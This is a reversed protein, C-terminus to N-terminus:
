NMLSTATQMQQDTMGQDKMSSLLNRKSDTVSRSLSSVEAQLVKVKQEKEEASMSRNSMLKQLEQQKQELEEQKDRITKLSRKVFDPLESEDIDKDRDAKKAKQIGLPSLEVHIGVTHKSAGPTLSTKENIEAPVAKSRPESKLEASTIGVNLMQTLADMNIM